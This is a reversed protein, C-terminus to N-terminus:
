SVGDEEYPPIKCFDYYVAIYFSLFLYDVVGVGPCLCVLVGENVVLGAGILPYWLGVSLAEALALSAYFPFGM